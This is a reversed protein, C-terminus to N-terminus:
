RTETAPTTSPLPEPALGVALRLSVDVGPREAPLETVPLETALADRWSGGAAQRHGSGPPPDDALWEWCNGALDYLGWASPPRGAVQRPGNGVEARTWGGGQGAAWAARLEALRPLRADLAPYKRRLTAILDLAETASVIAPRDDGGALGLLAAHQATTLETAALWIQPGRRLRLSVGPGLALDAWAGYRDNGSSSSWAPGNNTGLRTVTGIQAAILTAPLFWWACGALVLVMVALLAIPLMRSRQAPQSAAPAAPNVVVPRPGKDLRTAALTPPVADALKPQALHKAGADPLAETENLRGRQVAEILEAVSKIREGHAALGRALPEALERDGPPLRAVLQRVARDHPQPQDFGLERPSARTLLWALLAACGYVDTFPGSIGHVVEPAHWGRTGGVFSKHLRDAGLGGLGWDVVVPGRSPVLMINQPKLDRHLAGQAHAAAIAQAVPLWLEFAQSAPIEGTAAAAELSKGPLHEMLYYIWRVGGDDAFGSCVEGEVPVLRVIHPHNLAALIQVETAFQRFLEPSALPARKLVVTAQTSRHRVAFVEGM